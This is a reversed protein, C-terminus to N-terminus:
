PLTLLSGRRRLVERGGSPGLLVEPPRPRGNYSSFMASGYAGAMGIAVLDGRELPPLLALGFRDTSECIPGDVIAETVTENGDVPVGLSTLAAIPHEAGYLAPRILETMGADIVVLRLAGIVDPEGRDRVHLVRAVLWGSSAVVARGPEVALRSPRHDPPISQLAGAFSAAFEAATPGAVPGAPFGGGADLTDFDQHRDQLVAFHALVHFMATRWAEVSALQSGVHVHLGRWRLPGRVGGGARVVDPVESAPVGFKSTGRGVALGDLTEPEVAPNVRVLVDLRTRSPLSRAALDALSAAEDPSELSMWLLPRGQAALEVAARLDSATKGIGELAIQGAPLGARLSM